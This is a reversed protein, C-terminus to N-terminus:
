FLSDDLSRRSIASDTAGNQSYVIRPLGLGCGVSSTVEFVFYAYATVIYVVVSRKESVGPISM